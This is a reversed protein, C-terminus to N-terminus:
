LGLNLSSQFSQNFRIRLNENLRVLRRQTRRRKTMMAWVWWETRLQHVVRLRLEFFTQSCLSVGNWTFLRLLCQNKSSPLHILPQRRSVWTGRMLRDIIDVESHINWRLWLLSSKRLTSAIFHFFYLTLLWGGKDRFEVSLIIVSVIVLLLCSWQNSVFASSM